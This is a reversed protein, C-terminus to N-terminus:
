DLREFSLIEYSGSPYPPRGGVMQYTIKVKWGKCNQVVHREVEANPSSPLFEILGLERAWRLPHILFKKGAHEKLTIFVGVGSMDPFGLLEERSLPVFMGELGSGPAFLAAYFFSIEEITGKFLPDTLEYIKSRAAKAFRGLPYKNLYDRYANETGLSQTKEWEKFEYKELVAMALTRFRGSPYIKLYYEYAEKTGLSQTKEWESEELEAIMERAAKIFKGKPCKNCYYFYASATNTIKTEEWILSDIKSEATERYKGSPYKYLYKEYSDVTSLSVAKRWELEEIEAGANERYKGSPFETLYEKYATITHISSAKVYSLSDLKNLALKRYKERLKTDEYPVKSDISILLFDRYASITNESQAARWQKVLSMRDVQRIIFPPFSHFREGPSSGFAGRPFVAELDISVGFYFKNFEQAPLRIETYRRLPFLRTEPVSFRIYGVKFTIVYYRFGLQLDMLEGKGFGFNFSKEEEFEGSLSMEPTRIQSWPCYMARLYLFYTGLMEGDDGKMVEGWPVFRVSIPFLCWFNYNNYKEEWCGKTKGYYIFRYKSWTNFSSFLSASLGLWHDSDMLGFELIELKKRVTSVDYGGFNFITGVDRGPLQYFFGLGLMTFLLPSFQRLTIQPIM